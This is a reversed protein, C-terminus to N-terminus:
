EHGELLQSRLVLKAQAYDPMVSRVVGWFAPGHHMHRLHSLEHVVVYDICDMPYHVLRWNLRVASDAGASGWRTRASSLSLRSVVVGLRPAFHACRLEFIGMARRQLWAQVADRLADPTASRPLGVRLVQATEDLVVGSVAEDLRMTCPTGLVMVAAGERWQIRAGRAQASRTQQDKLHRVIWGAREHLAAEVETLTVWRPARVSLGERGVQMGISRRKARTFVYSVVHGDLRIRREGKPHVFVTPAYADLAPTPLPPRDGSFLQGQRSDEHGTIRRM